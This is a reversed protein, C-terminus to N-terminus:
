LHHMLESPRRAVKYVYTERKQIDRKVYVSIEKTQRKGCICLDRKYTEGVHSVCACQLVHSVCACPLVHSVCACPLVPHRVTMPRRIKIPWNRLLARYNTARKCFSVQLKLCETPRRWGTHIVHMVVRSVCACPFIRHRACPFSVDHWCVHVHSYTIHTACMPIICWQCSTPIPWTMDYADRIGATMALVHRPFADHWTTDIADRIKTYLWIYSDQM